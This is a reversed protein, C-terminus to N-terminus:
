QQSACAPALECSDEVLLKWGAPVPPSSLMWCAGSPDAACVEADINGPCEDDSTCCTPACGAYTDTGEPWLHGHRPVCGTATDTAVRASCAAEDLGECNSLACTAGTRFAQGFDAAIEGKCYRDPADQCAPTHVFHLKMSRAELGEFDYDFAFSWQELCYAPLNSYEAVVKVKRREFSAPFVVGDLLPEGTGQLKV